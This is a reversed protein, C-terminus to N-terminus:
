SNFTRDFGTRFTLAHVAVLRNTFLLEASVPMLREAAEGDVTVLLNTLEELLDELLERGSNDPTTAGGTGGTGSIRYALLVSFEVTERCTRGDVWSFESGGSVLFVAPLRVAMSELDAELQGAYREVSRLGTVGSGVAEMVASEIDLYTM